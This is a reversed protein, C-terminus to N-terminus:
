NYDVQVYTADPAALHYLFRTPNYGSTHFTITGNTSDQNGNTYWDWVFKNNIKSAYTTNTLTLGTSQATNGTVLIGINATPSTSIISTVQAGTAAINPSSPLSMIYDGVRPITVPGTSNSPTFTVFSVTAGSGPAVNVSALTAGTITSLTLKLSMSNPATPVPLNVLTCIGQHGAVGTTDLVRFKHSGKQALISGNAASNIGVKVNPALQRDPQNTKGGTGGKGLTYAGNVVQPRAYRDHIQGSSDTQTIKLKAM